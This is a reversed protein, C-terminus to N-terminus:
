TIKDKMPVKVSKSTGIRHGKAYQAKQSKAERGFFRDRSALLEAAFETRKGRINTFRSRKISM